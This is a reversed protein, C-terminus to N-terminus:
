AHIVVLEGLDALPDFDDDQTVVPLDHALATAAIWLDNVNVRRGADRLAVRLRAWHHATAADIGLVDVAAIGTLTRLRQARIRVDSAALVGAELEALTIATVYGNQPLREADLPRGSEQAVFISTDLVARVVREPAATV